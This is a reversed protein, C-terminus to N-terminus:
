RDLRLMRAALMTSFDGGAGQDLTAAATLAAQTGDANAPAAAFSFDTIMKLLASSPSIGRLDDPPLGRLQSQAAALMRSLDASSLERHMSLAHAVISERVVNLAQAELADYAITPDRERSSGRFFNAYRRHTGEKTALATM